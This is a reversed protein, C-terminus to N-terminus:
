NNFFGAVLNSYLGLNGTIAATKEASKTKMKTLEKDIDGQLNTLGANYMFSRAQRISQQYEELEAVTGTFSGFEPTTIGTTGQLGKDFSPMYADSFDFTREGTRKGEADRTQQGYTSDYYNELYSRNYEDQYEKSNVIDDKLDDYSYGELGGTLNSVGLSLEEATPARGLLTQYARNVSTNARTDSLENYQNQLKNFLGTKPREIGGAALYDTLQQSAGTYDITGRQLQSQLNEYYKNLGGKYAELKNAAAKAEQAKKLDNEAIEKKLQDTQLKILDKQEQSMGPDKYVTKGGGGGGM